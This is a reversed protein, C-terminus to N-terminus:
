VYFVGEFSKIVSGKLLTEGDNKVLVKLTGGPYRVQYWKETEFRGGKIAANIIACAGTGCGYTEGSGREYVRAETVDDECIHAYEINIGKKFANSKQISTSVTEIDDPLSNLFIVCHPNGMSVGTFLIRQGYVNMACEKDTRKCRFSEDFDVSSLEFDAKGMEAVAEGDEFYIKKTGGLTEVTLNYKQPKYKNYIYEGVCRVGNGCMIGESGDSNFIRMKCDQHESPMILILGDSGISIRRNSIVKALEEPRDVETEFCDIFVYDNGVSHM